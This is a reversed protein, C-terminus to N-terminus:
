KRKTYKEPFIQGVRLYKNRLRSRKMIAKYLDKTMFRGQNARVYKQKTPAHKNLIEIFINLFHRYEM